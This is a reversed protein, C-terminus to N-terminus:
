EDAALQIIFVNVNTTLLSKSFVIKNVAFYNDM